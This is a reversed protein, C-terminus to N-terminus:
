RWTPEEKGDERAVFNKEKKYVDVYWEGKDGNYTLEFYPSNPLTTFITCKYNQLVKNSWVLHIQYTEGEAEPIFRSAYNKVIKKAEEIYNM